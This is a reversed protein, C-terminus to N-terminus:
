NVTSGIRKLDGFNLWIVFAKGVIHDDPVFGWYRSDSSNDRNDGMMFYHGPPVKCRFAQDSYSCNERYPFDRVRALDIQASDRNILVSHVHGNLNEAHRDLRVQGGRDPDNYEGDPQQQQVVGNVLLQKDRYEIVDGPVGVVRKIYNQSPNEPYHFVMVEGRQPANVEILKYGAVPLRIGYTFKNVLIFDGIKLTPIMSGTPIQYPEVLFSRLMFVLLLVPLLSKSYEVWLPEKTEPKRKACLVFKDLMVVILAAVILLLMYLEIGLYGQYTLVGGALAAALLLWNLVTNMM